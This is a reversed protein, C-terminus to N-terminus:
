VFTELSIESFYFGSTSLGLKWSVFCSFLVAWYNVQTVPRSDPVGLALHLARVLVVRKVPKSIHM